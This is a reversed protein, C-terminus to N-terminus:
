GRKEKPAYGFGHMLNIIIAVAMALWPVPWRGWLGLLAYVLAL